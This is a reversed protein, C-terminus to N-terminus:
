TLLLGWFLLLCFITQVIWPMHVCYYLLNHWGLEGSGKPTQSSATHGDISLCTCVIMACWKVTTGDSLLLIIIMLSFLFFSILLSTQTVLIEAAYEGGPTWIITYETAEEGFQM